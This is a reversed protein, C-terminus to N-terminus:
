TRAVADTPRQGPALLEWVQFGLFVVVLLWMEVPLVFFLLVERRPYYLAYVVVVAMIAGSAGHMTVKSAMGPDGSDLVPRGPGLGPHQHDGRRYMALFDRSGYFSEM